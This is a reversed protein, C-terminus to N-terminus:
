PCTSGRYVKIEVESLFLSTSGVEHQCHVDYVVVVAVRVVERDKLREERERGACRRRVAVLASAIESERKCRVKNKPSAKLRGGVRRGEVPRRERQIRRVARGIGVGRRSKEGFVCFPVEDVGAEVVDMGAKSVEM